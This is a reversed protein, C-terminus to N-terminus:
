LWNLIASIRAEDARKSKDMFLSLGISSSLSARSREIDELL